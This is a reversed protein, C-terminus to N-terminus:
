FNWLIYIIQTKCKSNMIDFLLYIEKKNAMDIKIFNVLDVNNIVYRMEGNRLTITMSDESKLPRWGKKLVIKGNM